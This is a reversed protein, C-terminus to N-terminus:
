KAKSRELRDPRQQFWAKSCSQGAQSVMGTAEAREELDRVPLNGEVRTRM